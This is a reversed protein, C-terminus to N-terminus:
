PELPATSDAEGRSFWRSCAAGDTRPATSDADSRPIAMVRALSRTREDPPKGRRASCMTAPLANDAPITM